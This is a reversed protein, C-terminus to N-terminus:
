PAPLACMKPLATITSDPICNEGEEGSAVVDVYVNDFVLLTNLTASVTAPTVTLLLISVTDPELTPIPVADGDTSKSILPVACTFLSNLNVM